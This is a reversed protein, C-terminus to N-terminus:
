EFLETSAVFISVSPSSITKVALGPGLSSSSWRNRQTEPSSHSLARSRSDLINYTSRCLTLKLYTPQPRRCDSSKFLMHTSVGVGTLFPRDGDYWKDRVLLRSVKVRIRAFRVISTTDVLLQLYGYEVSDRRCLSRFRVMSVRGPVLPQKRSTGPWYVLVKPRNRGSNCRGNICISGGAQRLTFLPFDPCCKANEESSPCTWTNADEKVRQLFACASSLTLWYRPTM